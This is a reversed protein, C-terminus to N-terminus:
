STVEARSDKRKSRTSEVDIFFSSRLEWSVGNGVNAILILM